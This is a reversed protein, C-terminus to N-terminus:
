VICLPRRLRLPIFSRYTIHLLTALVNGGVFPLCTAATYSLRRRSEPRRVCRCPAHPHCEFSMAMTKSVSGRRRRHLPQFWHPKPPAPYLGLCIKCMASHFTLSISAMRDLLVVLHVRSDVWCRSSRNLLVVVSGVAFVSRSSYLM